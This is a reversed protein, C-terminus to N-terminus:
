GEAFFVCSDILEISDFFISRKETKGYREVEVFINKDIGSNGKIIEVYKNYKENKYDPLANFGYLLMENIRNKRIYYDSEVEGQKLATRFEKIKGKAIDDRQTQLIRSMAKHFEYTCVENVRCSDPNVVVLPRLEMRNGDETNYSERIETLSDKLQGYEVHWDIASISGSPDIDVGFRKANSCLEEALQYAAHFPYKRHVIAVGACASYKKKDEENTLATLKELFIRSCELGLNGATVFCVDDGALVVPRIPIVDGMDPSKKRIEEVMGCFATEFDQQIYCSFRNLSGKLENWDTKGQYISAVRTGMANGDIHVVAIFNDKIGLEKTVDNGYTLGDFDNPFTVGLKDEFPSRNKKTGRVDSKSRVDELGFSLRRFSKKRESKKKELEASLKLLNESPSKNIDSEILKVFVEIGPYEEIVSRTITKSFNLAEEKSDFELVTHGGGAYVLNDERRFFMPAAKEFYEGSTVYAIERSREANDALKKSSFIYEQKRSVELIMLYKKM